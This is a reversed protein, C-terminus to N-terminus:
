AVAAVRRFEAAMARFEEAAAYDKAASGVHDAAYKAHREADAEYREAQIILQKVIASQGPVEILTVLDQDRPEIHDVFLGGATFTCLEGSNLEATVPYAPSGDLSLITAIGGDRTNWKQGVAFDKLKM